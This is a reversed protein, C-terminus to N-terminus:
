LTHAPTLNTSEILYTASAAVSIGGSSGALVRITKSVGVPIPGSYVMSKTTPTEGDTTCYLKALPDDCSVSVIQTSAYAGPPPLFSIHM